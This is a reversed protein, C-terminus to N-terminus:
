MTLSEEPNYTSDLPEQVVFSSGEGLSDEDEEELQLRPRKLTGKLPTSSWPQHPVVPVTSTGVSADTTTVTM